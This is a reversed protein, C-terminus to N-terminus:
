YSHTIANLAENKQPATKALITRKNLNIHAQKFISKVTGIPLNKNPHPITVIGQILHHKFHHHSGKIRRIFWGNELILAILDSSNM